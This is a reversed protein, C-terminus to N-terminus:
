GGANTLNLLADLHTFIWTLFSGFGVFMCIGILRVALQNHATIKTLELLTTNVEKLTTLFSSLLDNDM